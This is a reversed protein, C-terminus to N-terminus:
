LEVGEFCYSKKKTTQMEGLAINKNQPLLRLCSGPVTPSWRDVASILRTLWLHLAAARLRAGSVLKQICARCRIGIKRCAILRTKIRHSPALTLFFIYFIAPTSKAPRKNKSHSTRRAPRVSEKEKLAGKRRSHKQKARLCVNFKWWNNQCFRQIPRLLRCLM